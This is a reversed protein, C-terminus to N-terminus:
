FTWFCAFVDRVDFREIKKGSAVAAVASRHRLRQPVLLHRGVAAGAAATRSRFDSFFRIFFPFFLHEPNQLSAIESGGNGPTLDTGTKGPLMVWYTLTRIRESM